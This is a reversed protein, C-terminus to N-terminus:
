EPLVASGPEGAACPGLECPRPEDRGPAVAGADDVPQSGRPDLLEPARQAVDGRLPDRADARQGRRVEPVAGAELRDPAALERLPEAAAIDNDEVDPWVGFVGGAM